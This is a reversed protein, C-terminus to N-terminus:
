LCVMRSRLFSSCYVSCCYRAMTYPFISLAALYFWCKVGWFLLGSRCVCRMEADGKLPTTCTDELFPELIPSWFFSSSLSLSKSLSGKGRKFSRLRGLGMFSSLSTKLCVRLSYRLSNPWDWERFCETGGMKGLWICRVSRRWVVFLSIGRPIILWCLSLTCPPGIWYWVGGLLELLFFSCFIPCPTGGFEARYSMMACM